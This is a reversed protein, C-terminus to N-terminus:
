TPEESQSPTAAIEARVSHSVRGFERLSVAIRLGLPSAQVPSTQLPRRPETGVRLHLRLDHPITASRLLRAEHIGPANLLGRQSEEARCITAASCGVRLIEVLPTADAALARRDDM